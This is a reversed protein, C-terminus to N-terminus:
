LKKIADLVKKAQENDSASIIKRILEAADAAKSKREHLNEVVSKVEVLVVSLGSVMTIWPEDISTILLLLDITFCMLILGWYELLKRITRRFGLSQIEEHKAKAKGIGTMLDVAVSVVVLSMVALLYTVYHINFLEKIMESM